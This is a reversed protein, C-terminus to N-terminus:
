LLTQYKEQKPGMRRSVDLHLFNESILRYTVLWQSLAAANAVIIAAASGAWPALREITVTAEVTGDL